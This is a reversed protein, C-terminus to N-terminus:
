KERPKWIGTQEEKASAGAKKVRQLFAEYDSHSVEPKEDPDLIQTEPAFCGRRVLEVNLNDTGQVVWVYALRSSPVNALLPGGTRVSIVVAKPHHKLWTDVVPQVNTSEARFYGHAM